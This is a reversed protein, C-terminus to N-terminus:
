RKSAEDASLFWASARAGFLQIVVYIDIPATIVLAVLDVQSMGAPDIASLVYSLILLALFALRAWNVGRAVQRYVFLTFGLIFASMLLEVLGTRAEDVLIAQYANAVLSVLLSIWMGYIAFKVNRPMIIIQTEM